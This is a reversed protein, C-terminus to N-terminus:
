IYDVIMKQKSTGFKRTYNRVENEMALKTKDSWFYCDANNVSRCADFGSQNIQIKFSATKNNNSVKVCRNGNIDNTFSLIM